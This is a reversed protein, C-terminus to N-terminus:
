VLSPANPKLKVCSEIGAVMYPVHDLAGLADGFQISNDATPMEDVSADQFSLKWTRGTKEARALAAPSPHNCHLGRFSRDCTVGARM